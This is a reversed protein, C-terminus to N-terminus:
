VKSGTMKEVSDAVNHASYLGLPSNYQLHVLKSSPHQAPPVWVGLPRRRDTPSGLEIISSCSAPTSRGSSSAAAAAAPSGTRLLLSDKLQARIEPPPSTTTAAASSSSSSSAPYCRKPPAHPLFSTIDVTTKISPDST